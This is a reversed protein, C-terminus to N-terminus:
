AMQYHPLDKWGNWDGGWEFGQAKFYSAIQMWRPDDPGPWIPGNDGLPVVDIATGLQHPSRGTGGQATPIGDCQTVVYGNQDNDIPAMGALDREHNVEDLPKRGQAYLAAQEQATRYTYTVAYPVGAAKLNVIARAAAVQTPETLFDLRTSM